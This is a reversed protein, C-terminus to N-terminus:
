GGNIITPPILATHPVPPCWGGFGTAVDVNIDAARLTVDASVNLTTSTHAVFRMAGAAAATVTSYIGSVVEDLMAQASHDAGDAVATVTFAAWLTPGEVYSDHRAIWIAPAVPAAPPAPAYAYVRDPLVPTLVTWLQERAAGFLNTDLMTMRDGLAAPVPRADGAGTAVPRGACLRHSLGFDDAGAPPSDKQRYLWVTTYTVAQVVPDAVILMPGELDLFQNVLQGAVPVLAEIRAADVDTGSLRLIALADGTISTVDWWETADPAPVTVDSM